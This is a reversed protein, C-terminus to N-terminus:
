RDPTQAQVHKSASRFRVSASSHHSLGGFFTHHMPSSVPIKAGIGDSIPVGTSVPSLTPGFTVGSFCHARIQYDFSFMYM